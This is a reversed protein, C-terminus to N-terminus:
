ASTAGAHPISFWRLPLTLSGQRAMVEPRSLPHIPACPWTGPADHLTFHYLSRVIEEGAKRIFLEAHELVPAEVEEYRIGSCM